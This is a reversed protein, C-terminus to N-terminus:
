TNVSAKKQAPRMQVAIDDNQKIFFADPVKKIIGNNKGYNCLSTLIKLYFMTTKRSTGNSTKAIIFKEIDIEDIEFLFKNGVIKTFQEAINSYRYLTKDKLDRKSRDRNIQKSLDLLTITETKTKVMSIEQNFKEVAKKPDRTRLSKRKGGRFGIYYIGRKLFMRAKDSKITKTKQPPACAVDIWDKREFSTKACEFSVFFWEGLFRKNKYKKHYYAEIRKFAYLPESIFVKNPKFGGMSCIGKIRKEPNVSVGIKILEKKKEIIYVHGISKQVVPTTIVSNSM